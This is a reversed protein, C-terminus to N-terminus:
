CCKCTLNNFDFPSAKDLCVRGVLPNIAKKFKVLRFKFKVITMFPSGSFSPKGQIIKLNTPRSEQQCTLNFNVQTENPFCPADIQWADIM